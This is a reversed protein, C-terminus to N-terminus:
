SSTEGLKARLAARATGPEDWPHEGDAHEITKEHGKGLLLVTDDKRARGIAFEIAKTRDAILFLDKDRTKGAAEAGVAIQELIARGEEWRNDEETVVVEDAFQGALKGQPARKGPDGNGGLSGFVVLLRGKVVPKMDSFLKEFSDPSHAYDVIVTFDQGEDIRAMRGEVGKLAAIGQEIQEPTLGLAFGVGAAALTNYVNFSGPLSTVVHLKKGDYRADYENGGPMSKANSAVVDAQVQKVSYRVVNPVAAAFYPASPDDANLVGLRMGHGRAALRFLKVKAERYREFTGHYSLHERTLNTMVAVSYPIGWVRNQALAHSTTELVLWEIGEARLQKIRQLLVRTGATTMHTMQPAIHEGTGYGVTTMLGVKYGAKHLMTHIIFSTTTKGNTGTVGIVKLGRAPFGMVVNWFIAEVLHGTPEIARFVGKPILAKVVKRFM